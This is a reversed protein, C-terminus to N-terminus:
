GPPWSLVRGGLVHAHLHFVTQGANANCNMVLRYGDKEVGFEEALESAIFVIHGLLELHKKEVDNISAIHERPVILVHFPAQPHIDKFAIVRDDEYVISAPIKKEIIQCFLCDDKMEKMKKM